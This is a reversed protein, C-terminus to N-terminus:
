APPLMLRVTLGIGDSDFFLSAGLQDALSRVMRMGLGGHRRPDFSEPLGVGDDAIRILIAGDPRRDCGLEIKGRVGAPHAYKVANTVLEGVMLGVALAQHSSIECADGFNTALTVAGSASMSDVATKAIERLYDHLVLNSGPGVHALLRHLRGVTEIRNGAEELLDCAEQASLARGRGALGAAELRLLGAILMLNNAIRHDSEASLLQSTEGEAGVGASGRFSIVNM